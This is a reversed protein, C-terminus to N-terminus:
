RRWKNVLMTWHSFTTDAGDMIQPQVHKVFQFHLSSLLDDSHSGISDIVQSTARLVSTNWHSMKTHAVISWDFIMVMPISNKLIFSRFSYSRHINFLYTQVLRRVDILTCMSIFFERRETRIRNTKNSCTQRLRSLWGSRRSCLCFFLFSPFAIGRMRKGTSTRKGEKKRKKKRQKERSGSAVADSLLFLLLSFVCAVPMLREEMNKTTRRQHLHLFLFFWRIKHADHRSTWKARVLHITTTRPRNEERKM